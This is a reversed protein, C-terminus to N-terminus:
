QLSALSEIHDVSLLLQCVCQEDSTHNCGFEEFGEVEVRRIFDKGKREHYYFIYLPEHKPPLKLPGLIIEGKKSTGLMNLQIGGSLEPLLPHFCITDMIWRRKDLDEELVLLHFIRLPRRPDPYVSALKGNYNILSGQTLCPWFRAICVLRESRVDFRLIRAKKEEGRTIWGGYYVKGNICIGKTVVTYRLTKGGQIGRWSLKGRGLTLVWHQQCREGYLVTSCLAKHEKGVPDYGLFLYTQERRGSSTAEIDPLTIMERTSPNCITFRGPYSPHLLAFLGHVSSCHVLDVPLGSMTMELTTHLCTYGIPNVFWGPTPTTPIKTEKHSSSLLFVRNEDNGRVAVLFRSRTQSMSSFSDIFAQNRITSLWEKSVCQFRKLSKAPLRTLIEVTLDLPIHDHAINCLGDKDEDESGRMAVEDQKSHSSVGSESYSCEGASLVAM